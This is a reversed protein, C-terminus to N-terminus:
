SKDRIKDCCAVVEGIPKEYQSWKALGRAGTYMAIGRKDSVLKGPILWLKTPNLDTRNDFGLCLFFDATKNYNIAFCYRYTNQRKKDKLLCSSKVDIRFGNPCVGDYGRFGHITREFSKFVHSIVREAVFVGLYQSCSPNEAMPTSGHSYKYKRSKSRYKDPNAHYRIQDSKSRCQKCSSEYGPRHLHFEVVDKEVGCKSCRKVVM